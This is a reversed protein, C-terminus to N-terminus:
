HLWHRVALLRLKIPSIYFVNKNLFYLFLAAAIRKNWDVFSHNKVIFYLLMAAKEEISPYLDKGDFEQYIQGTSSYFSDDKPTGFLVSDFKKKMQKIVTFFEKSEIKVAKKVTVGHSDLNEHDYDDLIDLGKSFDSLVKVLEKVEDIDKVKEAASREILLIASKLMAVEDSKEQLRKENITYGKVLHEKLIRNAWIRFQTGQKSNIRYGISLIMDLNYYTIDRKVKRNGEYRVQAIKACTAKEELEGTKIINKIHKTISTRDTGFLKELQSQTLWLTDEALTVETEIIGDLSVYIVIEGTNINQNDSVLSNM